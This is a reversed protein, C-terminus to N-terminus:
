FIQAYTKDWKTNIKKVVYLPMVNISVSSHVLFNHVNFNLIEFTLMFPPYLTNADMTLANPVFELSGLSTGYGKNSYADNDLTSQRFTHLLM